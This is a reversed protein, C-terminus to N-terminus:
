PPRKKFIKNIKNLFISYYLVLLIITCITFKFKFFLRVNGNGKAGSVDAAGAAVLDDILTLPPPTDSTEFEFIGGAGTEM